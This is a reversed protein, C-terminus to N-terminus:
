LLTHSFPLGLMVEIFLLTISVGYKGLYIPGIYYM